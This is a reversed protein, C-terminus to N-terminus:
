YKLACSKAGADSVQVLELIDQIGQTQLAQHPTVLSLCTSPWIHIFVGEM